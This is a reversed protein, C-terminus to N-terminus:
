PAVVGAAVALIKYEVDARTECTEDGAMRRQVDRFRYRSYTINARETTDLPRINKYAPVNKVV